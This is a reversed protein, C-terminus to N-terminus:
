IGRLASKKELCDRCVSHPSYRFCRHCRQTLSYHVDRLPCLECLPKTRCFEKGVKVILAHYENFLKINDTFKNMFIKQVKHYDDKHAIMAHRYLIRKTYADVVFTSKDLAYLLISDATEPGIGNVSLLKRRLSLLPERQMKRLNGSYEGAIFDLLNKLRKAKINFYGSPRILRALQPTSLKHMAALNLVGAQRLNMIAKEVNGWNTNQTLVAGVMIEFKTRGPWWHQPGFKKFLRQYIEKLDNQTLPKM